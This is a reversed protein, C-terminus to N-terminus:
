KKLTLKQNKKARQLLKKFLPTSEDTIRRDGRIVASITDKQYGFDNAIERKEETSTFAKILQLEEKTM